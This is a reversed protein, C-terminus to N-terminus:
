GPAVHSDISSFWALPLGLGEGFWSIFSKEWQTWSWASASLVFQVNHRQGCQKFHKTAAPYREICGSRYELSVRRRRWMNAWAGSSFADANTEHAIQQHTWLLGRCSYHVHRLKEDRQQFALPNNCGRFLHFERDRRGCHYINKKQWFPVCKLACLGKEYKM